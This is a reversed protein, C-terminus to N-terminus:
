DQAEVLSYDITLEEALDDLQERLDDIDTDAPVHILASAAFLLDASMPASSIDSRMKVMNIHRKALAASFEHVIGPRDPGIIDLQWRAQGTATAEPSASEVRLTIGRAELEALAKGLGEVEELALAVKAIGAFKGGLRTMRSELWNGGHAAVTEAISRVIGPRDDAIFSVLIQTQM